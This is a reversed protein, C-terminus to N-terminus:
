TVSFSLGVAVLSATSSSIAELTSVAITSDLSFSEVIASYFITSSVAGEASIGDVRTSSALGELVTVGGIASLTGSGGLLGSSMAEEELAVEFGENELEASMRLNVPTGIKDTSAAKIVSSSIEM